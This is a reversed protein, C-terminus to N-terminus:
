CFVQQRGLKLGPWLAALLAQGSQSRASCSWCFFALVLLNLKGHPIKFGSLILHILKHGWGMFYIDTRSWSLSLSVASLDDINNSKPDSRLPAHCRANRMYRQSVSYMDRESVVYMDRESVGCSQHPLHIDSVQVNYLSGSENRKTLWVLVSM